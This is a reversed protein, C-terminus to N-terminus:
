KLPQLIFKTADKPWLENSEPYGFIYDMRVIKANKVQLAVDPLNEASLYVIAYEGAPLNVDSFVTEPVRYVAYVGIVHLGPFNNIEDKYLYSGEPGLSPLVEVMTGEAEGERCAPPGGLANITKCPATTYGFLDILEQPEGSAVASLITDIDENGTKTVLSHYKTMPADTVEEPAIEQVPTAAPSCASLISLWLGFIVWNHKKM